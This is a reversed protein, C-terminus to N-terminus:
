KVVVIIVSSYNGYNEAVWGMAADFSQFEMDPEYEDEFGDADAPLNVTQVIYKM